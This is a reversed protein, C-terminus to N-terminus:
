VGSSQDDPGEVPENLRRSFEEDSITILEAARALLGGKGAEAAVMKEIASRTAYWIWEIGKGSDECKNEDPTLYDVM